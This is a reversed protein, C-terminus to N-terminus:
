QGLKTFRGGSKREILMVSEEEIEDSNREVKKDEEELLAEDSVENQVNLQAINELYKVDNRM